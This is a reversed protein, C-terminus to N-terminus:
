SASNQGRRLYNYIFNIFENSLENDREAADNIIVSGHFQWYLGGNEAGWCGIMLFYKQPNKFNYRQM